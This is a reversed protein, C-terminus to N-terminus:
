LRGALMGSPSKGAAAGFVGDTPEGGNGEGRTDISVEVSLGPRLMGALPNDPSVDIRVPVRQVIKTFNGTANEAPLLSFEAGSAPALSSIVGEIEQGPWADIALKAIQGIRMHGIQTEKFNALIHVDPLPVVVMTQSGARLYQGVQISKGGVVGDVPARVTTADRDAEASQLRAEAQHLAAQAEERRARYVDLEGNAAALDAQAQQLGAEAKATEANAEELSERSTWKASALKNSRALDAEAFQAQAQAAQIGAKAKDILAQQLNIQTEITTISAKQAEVAAHAAALAADYDTPDIEFLVDGAHVRQDDTVHVVQVLGAVKPAIPAIDAEVYANDTSEIFRWEHWYQWGAYSGGAIAAAAMGGLLVKKFSAM